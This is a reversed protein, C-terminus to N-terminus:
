LKVINSIIILDSNTLSSTTVSITQLNPMPSNAILIGPSSSLTCQNFTIGTLQLANSIKNLNILGRTADTSAQNTLMNFAIMTGSFSSAGSVKIFDRTTTSQVTVSSFAVTSGNLMLSFPPYNLPQSSFIINSFTFMQPNLTSFGNFLLFENAGLRILCLFTSSIGSITANSFNFALQDAAPNSYNFRWM